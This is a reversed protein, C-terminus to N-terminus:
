CLRHPRGGRAPDRGARGRPRQRLLRGDPGVADVGVRTRTAMASRAARIPEVDCGVLTEYLDFLIFELGGISAGNATHASLRPERRGSAMRPYCDVSITCGVAM